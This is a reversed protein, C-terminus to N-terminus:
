PKPARRQELTPLAAAALLRPIFVLIAGEIRHDITKYPRIRVAYLQGDGDEIELLHPRKHDIVEHVLRELDPIVVESKIHSLRRGVDAPILNLLAEAPETFQRISLDANLILIPLEVSSLLNVLDNNTQALERNRNELEDNVTALEENTSQLEEKATELEENASQLEENASQVEENAASLAENTGEQAEIISQMSVRTSNLERELEAQYRLLERMTAADAGTVKDVRDMREGPARQGAALAAAIREEAAASVARPEFLVILNNESRVAGGLALVQIDVRQERGQVRLRVNEKRQEGGAKTAAHIAARLEVVLDPHALKYLNLTATGASPEIYPWTRGLFRLIWQGPDIVVGVPVYHELLRQETERNLDYVRTEPGPPDTRAPEEPPGKSRSLWANMPETAVSKKRYLKAQKDHLAFLAVQSGVSESAGLLLFGQPQLAYHFLQLVKQQLRPQLYILLNRCSLLDIRSFPPDRTVDQLAFICRERIPKSVQYGKAVRQFYRKLRAPSVEGAISPPYIGARATEIAEDDVDSGFLQISPMSTEAELYEDLAIAISYVEQGTSCGPVWIRLPRDSSRGGLLAPFAIQELAVFSEVDRFFGTVNILIDHFLADIEKADHQLLQIYRASSDLKHLLIRRALRRRITTEKYASFDHGSRARLLIFIKNLEAPSAAVWDEPAHTTLEPRLLPHQALRGLERAIEAPPLVFDVYGAAVANAPMADYEASDRDQAFTIGGAEKIARCGLSGDSATGSLVVGIAKSGRDSALSSFFLDVLNYARGQEGGEPLVVLQNHLLSLRQGPAIAYVQNPALSLGDKALQIPLPCDKVLLEVLLSSHTPDLHQILVFAMGTESPLAQLLAKFAALGGASAGIGVM